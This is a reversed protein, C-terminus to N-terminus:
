ENKDVYINYQIVFQEFNPVGTAVEMNVRNNMHLIGNETNTKKGDLLMVKYNANKYIVKSTNSDVANYPSGFTHMQVGLLNKVISDAKNFHQKQFQYGTGDFERKAGDPPNNNTHTLGHHWIEFLHEGRDNNADIYKSYAKLASNDLRDAIIGIATKIKMSLLYDLVPAATCIGNKSGLDDLKLIM